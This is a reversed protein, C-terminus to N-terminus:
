QLWPGALTLLRTLMMKTKGLLLLCSDLVSSEEQEGFFFVVVSALNM